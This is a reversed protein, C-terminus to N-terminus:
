SHLGSKKTLPSLTGEPGYEELCCFCYYHHHNYHKMRLLVGLSPVVWCNKPPGRPKPRHQSVIRWPCSINRCIKHVSAILAKTKSCKKSSTHIAFLRPLCLSHRVRFSLAPESLLYLQTHDLIIFIGDRQLLCITYKSGTIFSKLERFEPNREQLEVWQIYM